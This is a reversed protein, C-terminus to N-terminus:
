HITRWFVKKVPLAAVKELSDFYAELDTSPYYTFLIDKYVLDGAFLYGRSKGLLM